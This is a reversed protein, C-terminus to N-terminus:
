LEKVFHSGGLPHQGWVISSQGHQTSKKKREDFSLDIASNTKKWSNTERLSSLTRRALLVIPLGRDELSVADVPVCDSVILGLLTWVDALEDSGAKKAINANHDCADFGSYLYQQALERKAPLLHEFNYISIVNKSNTTGSTPQSKSGNSRLTDDLPNVVRSHGQSDSQIAYSPSLFQSPQSPVKSSASSSSSSFYSDDSGSDSESDDSDVTGITTLRPKTFSTQHLKGFGEFIRKRGKSGPSLSDLGLSGFLSQSKDEKPPFFCVLRGNDAWLAGCAKPLPVNANSNSLSLVGSGALASDDPQLGAFTGLEDEDDSSSTDDETRSELMSANPEDKTWALLEDVTYEGQLYRTVAELSERQYNLYTSSIEQVGNTIKEMTATDVAATKEIKLSPMVEMPYKTPFDIRCDLYTSVANPGWPGHMSLKM